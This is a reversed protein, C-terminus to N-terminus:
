GETGPRSRRARLERAARRFLGQWRWGGSVEVSRRTAQERELGEVRQALETVARHLGMVRHSSAGDRGAANRERLEFSARTRERDAWWLDPAVREVAAQLDRDGSSRAARLALFLVRAEAPIGPDAALEALPTAHRRLGGDVAKQAAIIREEADRGTVDVFRALREVAQGPMFFDEYFVLERRAGATHWLARATYELWLDGWATVSLTPEPRRQMSAVADVPNRLCIVYSTDPPLLEKWFPLTYSIRPDKFGWLRHGAYHAQLLGRARERLPEIEPREYWDPPAPFPLWWQGGALALLEDNLKVMWAPEWYGRPNDTENAPLFSSGPGLEVGLLSLVHAALSTGSRGFGLVCIARSSRVPKSAM